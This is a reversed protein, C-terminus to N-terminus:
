NSEKRIPRATEVKWISLGSDSARKEAIPLLGWTVKLNRHEKLYQTLVQITFPDAIGVYAEGKVVSSFLDDSLGLDKIHSLYEPEFIMWGVFITNKLIERDSQTVRLPNHTQELQSYFSSFAVIPKDYKFNKFKDVESAKIFYSDRWYLNQNIKDTNLMLVKYGFFISFTILFLTLFNRIKEKDLRIDHFGSVKKISASIV